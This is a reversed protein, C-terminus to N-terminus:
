QMMGPPGAGEPPLPPGQPGPLAPPGEMPVQIGPSPLAEEESPTPPPPEPPKLMTATTVMWRRMLELHKEPVNRLKADLYAAQMMQLGMALNQFPEPPVYVGDETMKEIVSRMQKKGSNALNIHGELDPFDLLDMADEQSIFGGQVLEEVRQLRGTPTNPLFATPFAKMVYTDEEMNVQSWNIEKIGKKDEVKVKYEEVEGNKISDKVMEIIISAANLYFQEYKRGSLIFRESEIDNFTRLAVGSDLGAPKKSQASLQSIGSIEYAKAILVELHARLEQPVANQSWIEPKVGTYKVLAGIDNNIHSSVVKSGHQILYRPISCLHMAIQITRLLKNIELQIGMMQEALGQGFFGLLRDTWTIMSFPFFPLRYEECLLTCGEIAIVHKGDGADKGSPLHWSELVRVQDALHDHTILDGEAKKAMRIKDKFDPYLTMLVDRSIVKKQHLQRPSGYVAEADDIVIEAPFVRECKMKGEEIYFKAFGSGFVCGDLFIKPGQEYLKLQYFMGDIFKELLRAKKQDSFNGADTLFTPKPKNKAIKNTVTDCASQIVNLKLTTEISRSSNQAYRAATLGLVEMNSYLRMYRLNSEERFRQNKTLFNVVEFVGNHIKDDKENWWYKDIINGGSRETGADMVGTPM